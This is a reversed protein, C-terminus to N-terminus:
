EKFRMPRGNEEDRVSIGWEGVGAPEMEPLSEVERRIANGEM